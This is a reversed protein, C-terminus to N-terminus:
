GVFEETSKAAFLAEIIIYILLDVNICKRRIEVRFTSSAVEESVDCSTKDHTVVGLVSDCRFELMTPSM